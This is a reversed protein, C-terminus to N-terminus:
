FMLYWSLLMWTSRLMWSHLLWFIHQDTKGMGNGNTLASGMEETRVLRAAPIKKKAYDPFTIFARPFDMFSIITSYGVHEATVVALWLWLQLPFWVAPQDLVDHSYSCVRQGPCLHHLCPPNLSRLECHHCYPHDCQVASSSYPSSLWRAALCQVNVASFLICVIHFFLRVM